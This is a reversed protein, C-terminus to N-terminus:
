GEGRGGETLCALHFTAPSRFPMKGSSGAGTLLECDGALVAATTEIMPWAAPFRAAGRLHHGAGASIPWLQRCPAFALHIWSNPTIGLTPHLALAEDRSALGRREAIKHAHALAIASTTAGPILLREQYVTETRCHLLPGRCHKAGPAGKGTAAQRTLMVDDYQPEGTIAV